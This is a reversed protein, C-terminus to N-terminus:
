HNILRRAAWLSLKERNIKANHRIDVPFPKPYLLFHRIGACMPQATALAQLCEVVRSSSTTQAHRALEFILVPTQLPASGVGVLASRFILGSANFIAEVQETYLTGKATQVRHSKRGCYWLRGETDFYGVDGMRHVCTGDDDMKARATKEPANFYAETVSPGSIWWKPQAM